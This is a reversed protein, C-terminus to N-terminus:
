IYFMDCINSFNTHASVINQVKLDTFIQLQSSVTNIQSTEDIDINSDAVSVRGQSTKMFTPQVTEDNNLAVSM